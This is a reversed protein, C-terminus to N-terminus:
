YYNDNNNNNIVDVVRVFAVRNLNLQDNLQGTQVRVRWSWRLSSILSNTNTKLYHSLVVISHQARGGLEFQCVFRAM